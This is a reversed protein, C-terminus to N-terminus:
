IHILSLDHSKAISETSLSALGFDLIKVTGDKTLMLNHPKMDRHVMGQEHAHQLGAAAQRVYDVAQAIQLPGDRKVLDSLNTGVAYEMVLFHVGNAQEADYATVINPHSLQAAAKVERHFREIVETNRMLENKIVKLAVTRDMMRHTAKFVKGMGGQAILEVIEYRSHETLVEKAADSAADIDLHSMGATLRNDSNGAQKLLGVFTDDASLGSLTESCQQCLDIHREVESAQSEPLQGSVFASLEKVSPHPAEITM